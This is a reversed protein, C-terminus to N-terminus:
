SDWASRYFDKQQVYELLATYFDHTGLTASDGVMILKKRARTM